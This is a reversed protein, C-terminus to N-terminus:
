RSLATRGHRPLAGFLRFSRQILEFALPDPLDVCLGFLDPSTEESKSPRLPLMLHCLGARFGCPRGRLRFPSRYWNCAYGKCGSGNCLLVAGLLEDGFAFYAAVVQSRATFEDLECVSECTALLFLHWGYCWRRRWHASLRCLEGRRRRLAIIRELLFRRLCSMRFSRSPSSVVAIRRFTRVGM